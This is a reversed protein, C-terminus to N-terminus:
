LPGICHLVSCACFRHPEARYHCTKDTLVAICGATLALAEHPTMPPLDRAERAYYMKVAQKGSHAHTLAHMYAKSFLLMEIAVM